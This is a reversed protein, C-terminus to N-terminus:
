SAMKAPLRNSKIHSSAKHKTVPVHYTIKSSQKSQIVPEGMEHYHNEKPCDAFFRAQSIMEADIAFLLNSVTDLTWNSPGSLLRSIHAKSYGLNDAIGSRTTGCEKAAREVAKIVEEYVSNKYRQSFIAANYNTTKKM